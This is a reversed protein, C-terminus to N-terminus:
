SRYEHARDIYDETPLRKFDIAIVPTQQDEPSIIATYTLEVLNNANFGVENGWTTPPLELEEYFHNLDIYEHGALIHENCSNVARRIKEMSSRFYRGSPQDFCLVDGGAVVILDGGPTRNARDQALEADVADRKPGTLKEAVKERYEDFQQRSLGYAAALAAAKQASMRHSFIIATISAAGTLVPPVM